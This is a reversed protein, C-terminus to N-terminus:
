GDEERRERLALEARLLALKKYEKKKEETMENVNLDIGDPTRLETKDAWGHRNKMNMYWLTSNFGGETLNIRGQKMWWAKSAGEGKKVAELFKPHKDQWNLFTQYWIGIEECVEEKSMGDKMLEPVLECYEKKYKTPRGAPM